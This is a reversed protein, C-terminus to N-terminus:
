IKDTLGDAARDSVVVQMSYDQKTEYDLSSNAAVTIQGTASNSPTIAFKGDPDELSYTLTDSTNLDLATVPDGVNTGQGATEPIERTTDLGEEFYPARNGDTVTVPLSGVIYDEGDHTAVHWIVASDDFEDDDSLGTVTMTQPTEWNGNTGATFTLSAPAVSITDVYSAIIENDTNTLILAPTVTLDTSPASAPKVTYTAMGDESVIIESIEVSQQEFTLAPLASDRVVARVQALVYDKGGIDAEHTITGIEDSADMDAKAKLTVDQAEDYKDKEFTLTLSSSFTKPDTTDKSLTLADSDSSSLTITVDNSPEDALAVSYIATDGEALEILGDYNHGVSVDLPFDAHTLTLGLADDDIVEVPLLATPLANDGISVLHLIDTTENLPDDDSVPTVTVDESWDTTTFSIETTSITAM